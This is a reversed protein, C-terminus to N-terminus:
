VEVLGVDIKKNLWSEINCLDFKIVVVIEVFEYVVMVVVKVIVM